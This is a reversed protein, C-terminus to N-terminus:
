NKLDLRSHIDLINTRFETKKIKDRDSFYISNM